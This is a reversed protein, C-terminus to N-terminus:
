IHILSLYQFNYKSSSVIPNIYITEPVYFYMSSDFASDIAKSWATVYGELTSNANMSYATPDCLAEGTKKLQDYYDTYNMTSLATKSNDVYWKDIHSILANNYTERLSTKNVATTHLGVYTDVYLSETGSLTGKYGTRSNFNINIFGGNIKGNFPYLGRAVSYDDNDEYSSTDVSCTVEDTLAGYTQTQGSIWRLYNGAGSRHHYFQLWGASLNPIQNYDSYRSTDVVIYAVGSTQGVNYSTDGNGETTGTPTPNAFSGVNKWTTRHYRDSGGIQYEPAVFM